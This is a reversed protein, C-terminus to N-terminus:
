HVGGPGPLIWAGSQQDWKAKDSARVIQVADDRPEEDSTTPEEEMEYEPLGDDPCVVWPGREDETLPRRLKSM